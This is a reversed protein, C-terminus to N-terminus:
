DGIKDSLAKLKAPDPNEESLEQIIAYAEDGGVFPEDFVPNRLVDTISPRKTPDPDLMQNFLRDMATVAKGTSNGAQDTGFERIHNGADKGHEVIAEQEESLFDGHFPSQGHFLRYASIGIAWTDAKNTVITGGLTDLKLQTTVEIDAKIQDYLQKRLDPDNPHQLRLLELEANLQQKAASTIASRQEEQIIIEPAKWAPNDVLRGDLVQRDGARAFGFDGLKMKGDQGIFYNPEKVDLHTMGRVEQFHQMGRLMDRLITLRVANAAVPTLRGEAVATDLNAMMAYGDTKALEMAILVSGEPTRVVGNMATVNEHGQPGMASQHARVEAAAEELNGSKFSKVAIRDVVKSKEGTTPDTVERTHEYVHVDGFGGEGLKLGKTYEKGGIVIKDKATQKDPLQELMANFVEDLFAKVEPPATRYHGTLKEGGPTTAVLEKYLEEKFQAGDSIAFARQALPGQASIDKMMAHGVDTALSKIGASDGSVLAGEVKPGLGTFKTSAKFKDSLASLGPEQLMLAEQKVTGQPTGEIIDNKASNYRFEMKAWGPVGQEKPPTVPNLSSRDFTRIDDRLTNGSVSRGQTFETMVVDVRHVAHQVGAELEQRDQKIAAELVSIELKTFKVLQEVSEGKSGGPSHEELQEKLRNLVALMEGKSGGASKLAQYEDALRLAEKYHSGVSDPMLKDSIKHLLHIAGDKLNAVGTPEGLVLKMGASTLVSDSDMGSFKEAIAKQAALAKETTRVHVIPEEKTPPLQPAQPIQVGQQATTQTVNM